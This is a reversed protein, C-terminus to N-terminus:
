CRRAVEMRARRRRAAAIVGGVGAPRVEPRRAVLEYVADVLFQGVALVIGAVEVADLVQRRGVPLLVAQRRRAANRGVRHGAGGAAQVRVDARRVGVQLHRSHRTLAAHGFLLHPLQYRSLVLPRCSPTSPSGRTFTSFVSGPAPRWSSYPVCIVSSSRSSVCFCM